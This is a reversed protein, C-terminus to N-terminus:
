EQRLAAMPDGQAARRAPLYAALAIAVALTLGAGALQMPDNFRVGFLLSVVLHGAALSGALGLAVGAVALIAVDRLMLWIVSRPQAGLAIRIGIESRRQAVAYNTIGYLGVIALLLALSGFITSLLAVMRPRLLSENVQTELDRFELAIDRNVGSFAARVSPILADVRGQGRVSYNLSPSPGTDQAAALYGIHRQPENLRNYKADKAVGIVRYLDTGTREKMAITKGIPNAGGFFHRAASENIVIALPATLDDRSDFARGALVPTRMTEFYHESVRNLFLM